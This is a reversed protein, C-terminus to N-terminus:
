KQENKMNKRTEKRNKARFPAWDFKWVGIQKKKGLFYGHQGCRQFYCCKLKYSNMRNITFYKIFVFVLLCLAFFLLFFSNFTMIRENQSGRRTWCANWYIKPCIPWRMVGLSWHVIQFMTRIFLEACWYRFWTVNECM